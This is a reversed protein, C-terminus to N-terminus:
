TMDRTCCAAPPRRLAPCRVGTSLMGDSRIGAGSMDIIRATGPHAAAAVSGARVRRPQGRRREGSEVAVLALAALLRTAGYGLDTGPKAYCVPLVM